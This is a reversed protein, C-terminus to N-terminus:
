PSAEERVGSRAFASSLQQRLIDTPATASSPLARIVITSAVDVDALAVSCAARLRRSVAHRTVANGVSKSVILGIRPSAPEVVDLRIHRDDPWRCPSVLVYTMLDSRRVRVGHRLTRTFESGRSIRQHRALM